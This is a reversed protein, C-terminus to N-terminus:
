NVCGHYVPWNHGYENILDTILKAYKPNAYVCFPHLKNILRHGEKSSEHCQTDVTGSDEDEYGVIDVIISDMIYYIKAFVGDKKQSEEVNSWFEYMASATTKALEVIDEEYYASWDYSKMSEYEKSRNPNRMPGLASQSDFKDRCIVKFLRGHDDTEIDLAPLGAKYLDMPANLIGNRYKLAIFLDFLSARKVYEPRNRYEDQSTIVGTMVDPNVDPMNFQYLNGYLFAIDDSSDPQEAVNLRINKSPPLGETDPSRGRKFRHPHREVSASAGFDEPHDGNGTALAQQAALIGLFLSVLTRM